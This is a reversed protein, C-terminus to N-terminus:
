EDSLSSRLETSSINEHFESETVGECLDRLESPIDLSNLDRFGSGDKRGFVLFRCGAQRISEIAADRRREDDDYYAPDGIREMTDAGVIFTAGPLLRSKEVFTPAQTLLVDRDTFQALRDRIEIFDLPPKDVNAISLEFTVPQSCKEEAIDAMALHGSHLPHFAGPFLISSRSDRATTQASVVFSTRQGMLLETWERPAICEDREITEESRLKAQFPHNVECAEAIAQLVLESALQEEEARTRAGKELELSRVVTRYASQWAVHVRHPGRKPRDTALSATCGIGRLRLRQTDDSLHVARQYAAMAMARATAASCAQEVKGGVWEELAQQNYPVIAELVSRSAGPVILLSSVASSGGGTVAIVLRKGSVHISEIAHVSEPPMVAVALKFALSRLLEGDQRLGTM